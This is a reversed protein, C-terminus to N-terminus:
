YSMRNESMYKPQRRRGRAQRAEEDGSRSPRAAHSAADEGNSASAGPGLAAFFLDVRRDILTRQIEPREPLDYGFVLRRLDSACVAELFQEALFAPDWRETIAGEDAARQFQMTLASILPKLYRDAGLMLGGGDRQRESQSVLLRYVDVSFPMLIRRHMHHAMDRLVKVPTETVDHYRTFESKTETFLHDAVAQLLLPKSRFRAYLTRKSIGAEAAVADMSTAEFGEDLFRRAAVAVIRGTLEAADAKAPRGRPRSLGKSISSGRPM